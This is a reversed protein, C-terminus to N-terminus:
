ICFICMIILNYSLKNSTEINLFARILIQFQKFSTVLFLFHNIFKFRNIIIFSYILLLLLCNNFRWKSVSKFFIQPLLKAIFVLGIGRKSAYQCHKAINEPLPFITFLSSLYSYNNILIHHGSTSNFWRCVSKWDTARGVSSDPGKFSPRQPIVSDEEEASLFPLDPATPSVRVGVDTLICSGSGHTDVLEVM